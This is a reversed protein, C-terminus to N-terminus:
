PSRPRITELEELLKRAEDLRPGGLEVTAQLEARAAAIDSAGLYAKALYFRSEELFPTEGLSVVRRLSEVAEARHGALLACAGLYFSVHSAQPDLRSAERLAPLAASWEGKAYLEMAERFRRGAENEAGRLRTPTWRPPDVRALEAMTATKAGSEPEALPTAGRALYLAAGSGLVLVAAVAAMWLISRSFRAQAQVAHRTRALELQLAELAKLEAFCSECAFFHDEYRTAEEESLSGRLYREADESSRIEACDM